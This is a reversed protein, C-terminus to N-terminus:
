ATAQCDGPRINPDNVRMSSPQPGFIRLNAPYNDGNFSVRPFSDDDDEGLLIQIGIHGCQVQAKTPSMSESTVAFSGDKSYSVGSTIFWKNGYDDTRFLWPVSGPVLCGTDGFITVSFERDNYSTVETELSKACALQGFTLPPTRVTSSATNSSPLESHSSLQQGLSAYAICIMVVSFSLLVRSIWYHVGRTLHMAEGLPLRSQPRIYRNTRPTNEQLPREFCM